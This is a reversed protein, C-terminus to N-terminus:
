STLRAYLLSLEQTLDEPRRIIIYGSSGFLHPIYESAKEDITVCFPLMGKQRAEQLAMRTDEIGYRGEYKDLDNPKGDTLLLLLRQSTNQQELINSAHRIAAGMRTYFGPKIAAIRGRVQDGHSENFAKITSFRVHQRKLSSFGYIGFRDRTASLSEAFLFLSDRIVDIIRHQSSIWSDTSLSLDALLLCSLDRFGGRFDRYLNQRGDSKGHMRQVQYSLFADLDIENGDQLGRQWTRVPQLAEFHARLRRATLRLRTPLKCPTADTAIMEQVCCHDALLVSKKYNWEPLLIGEGLPTDDNSAAPLDLDFRIRKASGKSDRAVSLIDLDKATKEANEMDDDEDLGRDVKIFEAWGFINEFRDLLLGQDGKPMDVKEAKYRRNEESEVVEGTDDKMEPDPEPGDTDPATLETPPSPHLWLYVAQAAYASVPLERCTGPRLLATRIAREQQAEDSPLHDPDPRLALHADVLRTYRAGLGPFTDVLKKSLLQNHLFWEGQQETHYDLAALCALWLYLDRNLERSPLLDLRAPLHLAQESQWSLEVKKHTGAMRQLLSRRSGHETATSADIRLGGAGGFARFMIGVYRSVETLSVGQQPFRQVAKRTIFRHWVKGVYEEM